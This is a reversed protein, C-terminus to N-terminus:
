TAYDAVKSLRGPVVFKRGNSLTVRCALPYVTGAAGGSIRVSLGDGAPIGDFDAALVAPTGVSLGSGGLIEGSSITVGSGSALEPAESCDFAYDRDDSVAAIVAPGSETALAMPDYRWVRNWSPASRKITRSWAAPKRAFVRPWSPWARRFIGGPAPPAQTPSGAGMGLLNLLSTWWGAFM